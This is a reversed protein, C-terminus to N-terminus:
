TSPTNGLPSDGSLAWGGAERSKFAQSLPQLQNLAHLPFHHVQANPDNSLKRFKHLCTTPISTYAQPSYASQFYQQM